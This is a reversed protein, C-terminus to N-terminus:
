AIWVQDFGLGGMSGYLAAPFQPQNPCATFTELDIVEVSSLTSSSDNTGGVLLVKYYNNGRLGASPNKLVHMKEEQM